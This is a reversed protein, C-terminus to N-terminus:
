RRLGAKRKVVESKKTLPVSLRLMVRLPTAACKVSVTESAGQKVEGVFSMRHHRLITHGQDKLHLCPGAAKHGIGKWSAQDALEKEASKNSFKPDNTESDHSTRTHVRNRVRFVGM